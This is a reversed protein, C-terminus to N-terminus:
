PLMYMELMLVSSSFLNSTIRSMSGASSAVSSVSIMVSPAELHFYSSKEEDVKGDPNLVIKLGDYVDRADFSNIFELIFPFGASSAISSVSIVMSPLIGPTFFHKKMVRQTQIQCLNLAIMCMKIMLVSSPVLNATIRAM